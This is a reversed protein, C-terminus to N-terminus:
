TKTPASYVIRYKVGDLTFDIDRYNCKPREAIVGGQQIVFDTLKEFFDRKAPPYKKDYGNPFLPRGAGKKMLAGINARQEPSLLIDDLESGDFYDVLFDYQRMTLTELAEEPTKGDEDILTRLKTLLTTAWERKSPNRAKSEYQEAM